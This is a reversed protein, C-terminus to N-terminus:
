RLNRQAELKKIQRQREAEIWQSTTMSKISRPDTTDFAPSGNSRATVPSIPAPASTTKKVPPADALKAEIRGIEKAQLIPALRSIRDVEKPNSGLYYAVDPGIDSARITDAMVQTIPLQANLAVQEYDPYKERAQEEREQFAQLTEEQQQRQSRQQILEEAKRQALAEVYADDSTFQERAPAEQPAVPQPQQQARERKWKRQEKELRKSVIADLEEQTFTKPTEAQQEEPSVVPEPAATAVPESAPQEAVVELVEETM